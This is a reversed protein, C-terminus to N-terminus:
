DGIQQNFTEVAQRYAKSNQRGHHKAYIDELIDRCRRSFLSAPQHHLSEIMSEIFPTSRQKTLVDILWKNAEGLNDREAKFEAERAQTEIEYDTRGGNRERQQQLKAEYERVRAKHADQRAQERDQRARKLRARNADSVLQNDVRELKRVCDIGVTFFMGDSSKIHCEWMIGQGCYCCSGGPQTHGPDASYVNKTLGAFLFPSKGLGAEEFPHLSEM